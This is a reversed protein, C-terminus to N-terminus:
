VIRATLEKSQVDCGICNSAQWSSRSTSYASRIQNKLLFSTFADELTKVLEPLNYCPCLLKGKDFEAVLENKRKVKVESPLTLFASM